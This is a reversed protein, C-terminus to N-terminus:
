MKIKLVCNCSIKCSCIGLKAEWSLRGGSSGHEKAVRCSSCKIPRGGETEMAVKVASEVSTTENNKWARIRCPVYYSTYQSAVTFWFEELKILVNFTYQWFGICVYIDTTTTTTDLVVFVEYIVCICRHELYSAYCYNSWQSRYERYPLM